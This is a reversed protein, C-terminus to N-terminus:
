HHKTDYDDANNDYLEYKTMDNTNTMDDITNQTM